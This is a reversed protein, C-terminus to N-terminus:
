LAPFNPGKSSEGHAALGWLLCLVAYISFSFFLVSTETTQSSRNTSRPRTSCANRVLKLTLASSWTATREFFVPARLAGTSGGDSVHHSVGEACRKKERRGDQAAHKHSLRPSKGVSRDACTGLFQGERGHVELVHAIPFYQLLSCLRVVAFEPILLLM